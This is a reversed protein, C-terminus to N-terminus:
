VAHQLAIVLNNSSQIVLYEADGREIGQLYIIVVGKFFM